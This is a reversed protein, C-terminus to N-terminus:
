YKLFKHMPILHFFSVGDDYTQFNANSIEYGNKQFFNRLNCNVPEYALLTSKEIKHRKKLLNETYQLLASGNNYNRYESKIYINNISAETSNIISYSSNGIINSNSNILFIKPSKSYINQIKFRLM